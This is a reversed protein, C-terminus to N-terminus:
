KRRKFEVRQAGHLLILTDGYNVCELQTYKDNNYTITLAAQNRKLHFKLGDIVTCYLKSLPTTWENEMTDIIPFLKTQSVQIDVQQNLISELFMQNQSQLVKVQDDNEYAIDLYHVILDWYEDDFKIKISEATRKGINCLKLYYTTDKKIIEALLYPRNQQEWQRKLEDVQERNQMLTKWTAFVMAFSAISGIYTAWFGLWARSTEDNGVVEFWKNELILCNVAYPIGLFLFLTGLGILIWHWCKLKNKM